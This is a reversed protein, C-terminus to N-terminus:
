VLPSKATLVREYLRRYRVGGVTTLDFHRRAVAKCRAALAPERQLEALAGLAETYAQPNLGSLIVGVREEALLTDFDGIGATSLVPLGGALCESIKTPSASVKSYSPKTFSLAADAAKLYRPVAAPKVSRILFREPPMGLQQLRATLAEPASQSLILAFTRSDQAYALALLEAMQDTLNWGGLAGV